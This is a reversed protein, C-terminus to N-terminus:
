RNVLQIASAGTIKAGTSEITYPPIDGMDELREHTINERSM